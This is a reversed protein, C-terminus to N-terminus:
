VVVSSGEGRPWLPGQKTLGQTGPIISMPNWAEPPIQGPDESAGVTGIM